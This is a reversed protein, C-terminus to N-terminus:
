RGQPESADLTTGALSYAGFVFSLPVALVRRQQGQITKRVTLHDPDRGVLVNREDLLKRLLEKSLNIPDGGEESSRKVARIVATADLYVTEGNVWGVCESHSIRPKVQQDQVRWGLSDYDDPPGGDTSQIHIRGAALLSALESSVRTLPDSEQLHEAQYHLLKILHRRAENKLQTAETEDVVQSEFLFRVLTAFGAFLDGVANSTRRHQAPPLEQRFEIAVQRASDVLEEKKRAMWQLFTSLLQAFEGQRALDQFKTLEEWIVTRTGVPIVLSRARLSNGRPLEEATFLLSGGPKHVPQMNGDQTLRQRGARNGQGRLIRDTEHSQRDVQVRSGTPAFDDVVILADKARHLVAGVANSTSSFSTPLSRADFGSGFFQQALAALETKGVGTPGVLGVSFDTPGIVARFVLGLLPIAVEPGAVNRLLEVESWIKRLEVTPAPKPLLFHALAPELEVQFSPSAGQAGIAGGQHLYFWKGQQEIWGTHKFVRTSGPSSLAQIAFRAHDRRSLGPLIAARAGLKAVWNMTPFESAPVRVLHVDGGVKAEIEYVVSNEQGDAVYIERIIQANFNTLKEIQHFGDHPGRFIGEETVFYEHNAGATSPPGKQRRLAHEVDRLQHRKRLAAKATQWRPIDYQRVWGLAALTEDSFLEQDSLEPLRDLMELSPSSIRVPDSDGYGDAQLKKAAARFDGGHCLMTYAAFKSYSCNAQLPPANTSFCYLLDEGGPSRCFGTTASHGESKGPRQWLDVGNITRIRKWGAPQLIEPWGARQNFDDGPRHDLLSPNAPIGVPKAQEAQKQLLASLIQDPLRPPQVQGLARDPLWCRVCDDTQSPPILSQVGKNGGGIRVEIAGLKVVAPLGELSEEYRFLRHIGRRSQFAPGGLQDIEPILRKLEQEAEPGDCELDILGSGPGLLIGLNGEPNKEFFREIEKQSLEKTQWHKSQPVKKNPRVLVVPIGAKRLALAVELTQEIQSLDPLQRMSGVIQQSEQSPRSNALTNM